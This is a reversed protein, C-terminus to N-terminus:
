SDAGGAFPPLVEVRVDGTVQRDLDERRAALGDILLSCADLVRDFRPDARADRALQLASAVTDTDFRETEVGAAAKAGAWYFVSISAMATTDAM